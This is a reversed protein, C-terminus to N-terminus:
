QFRQFCILSLFYGTLIFSTNLLSIAMFTPTGWTTNWRWNFEVNVYILQKFSGNYGALIMLNASSVDSGWLDLLPSSINVLYSRSLFKNNGDIPFSQTFRLISWHITHSKCMYSGHSFFYTSNSYSGFLIQLTSPSLSQHFGLASCVRHVNM